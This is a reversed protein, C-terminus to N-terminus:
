AADLREYARAAADLTFFMRARGLPDGLASRRMVDLV